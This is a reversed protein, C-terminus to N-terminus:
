PATDLCALAANTYSPDDTVEREVRLWDLLRIPTSEDALEVEALVLGALNGAFVDVECVLGGDIPVAFRRKRITRRAPDRRKALRRYEGCDLQHQVEERTRSSIRKKRTSTYDVTGDRGISRRVRLSEAPDRSLLYIQEIEHENVAVAAVAALDLEGILFKREIEFHMGFAGAKATKHSQLRSRRSRSWSSCDARPRATSMSSASRFRRDLNTDLSRMRCGRYERDARWRCGHRCRRRRLLRAHRNARSALRSGTRCSGGPEGARHGHPACRAGSSTRDRGGTACRGNADLLVVSTAMSSPGGFNGHNVAADTQIADTFMYGNPSEIQRDFGSVIGASVSGEYGFPTGIALVPAGLRLSGAQGLILPHLHAAGVRIRVVALDTTADAGALTGHAVYGDALRVNIKGGGELVHENTVISGRRDILFGTGFVSETQTESPV